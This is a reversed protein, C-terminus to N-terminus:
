RLKLVSRSPLRQQKGKYTLSEPEPTTVQGIDEFGPRVPLGCVQKEPLGRFILARGCSAPMECSRSLRGPMRPQLHRASGDPLLPRACHPWSSPSPESNYAQGAAGLPSRGPPRMPAKCAIHGWCMKEGVDWCCSCPRGPGGVGKVQDAYAGAPWRLELCCPENQSDSASTPGPSIGWAASLWGSRLLAYLTAEGAGARPQPM